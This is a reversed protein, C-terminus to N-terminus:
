DNNIWEKLDVIKYWDYRKGNIEVDGPIVENIVKVQDQAEKESAFTDIWDSTGSEPYFYEGAILLFYKM